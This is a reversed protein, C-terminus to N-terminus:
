PGGLSDPRGTIHQYEISFRAVGAGINPTNEDGPTDVRSMGGDHTTIAWGGQTDDGLVIAAVRLYAATLATAIGDDDDSQVRMQIEIDRTKMTVGFCITDDSSSDGGDDLSYAPLTTLPIAYGRDRYLAVPDAEAALAALNTAINALIRECIATM